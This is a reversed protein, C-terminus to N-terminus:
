ATRMPFGRQRLSKLNLLSWQQGGLSRTEKRSNFGAKESLVGGLGKVLHFFAESPNQKLPTEVGFFFSINQFPPSLKRSQVVLPLSPASTARIRAVREKGEEAGLSRTQKRSLTVPVVLSVSALVALKISAVSSCVSRLLPLFSPASSAGM